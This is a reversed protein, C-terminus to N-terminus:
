SCAIFKCSCLILGSTLTLTFPLCFQSCWRLPSFKTQVSSSKMRKTTQPEKSLDFSIGKMRLEQICRSLARSDSIDRQMMKLIKGQLILKYQIASILVLSTILSLTSPIWWRTCTHANEQTASTFLLTLVIGHFAFYLCALHFIEKKISDIRSEKVEIRRAFVEDDKQWLKLLLLHGRSDAIEELPHQSFKVPSPPAPIDTPSEDQVDVPIEVIHSDAPVNVNPESVIIVDTCSDASNDTM